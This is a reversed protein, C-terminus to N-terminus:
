DIRGPACRRRSAVFADLDAYAIFVRRLTKPRPGVAAHRPISHCGPDPLFAGDLLQVGATTGTEDTLRKNTLMGTGRM